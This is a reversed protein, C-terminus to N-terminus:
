MKRRGAEELLQEPTPASQHFRLIAGASAAFERAASRLSELTLGTGADLFVPMRGDLYWDLALEYYPRLGRSLHGKDFFFVPYGHLTRFLSTFSFVNWYFAYESHLVQWVFERYPLSEILMAEVADGLLAKVQHLLRAPAVLCPMRGQEWADTLRAAIRPPLRAGHHHEQIRMDIESLVFLWVPRTTHGPTTLPDEGSGGVLTKRSLALPNHFHLRPYGAGHASVPGPYIHMVRRLIRHVRRLRLCALLGRFPALCRHRWNLPYLGSRGFDFTWPMVRPSLGCFPDSTLVQCGRKELMTILHDLAASSILRDVVLLYGSFMLVRDPQIDGIAELIEKIGEYFRVNEQGSPFTKRQKVPALFAAAAAFSQGATFYDAMGLEGYDGSLLLLTKMPASIYAADFGTYM